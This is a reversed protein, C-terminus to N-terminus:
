ASLSYRLQTTLDCVMQMFGSCTRVVDLPWRTVSVRTSVKVSDMEDDDVAIEVLEAGMEDDVGAIAALEAGAAVGDSAIIM